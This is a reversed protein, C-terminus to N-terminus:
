WIRLVRQDPSLCIYTVSKYASHRVLHGGMAHCDREHQTAAVHFVLLAGSVIIAAIALTILMLKLEHRM